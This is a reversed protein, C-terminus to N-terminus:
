FQLGTRIKYEIDTLVSPLPRKDPLLVATRAEADMLMRQKSYYHLFLGGNILVPNKLLFIKFANIASNPIQESFAVDVKHETPLLQFSSGSQSM